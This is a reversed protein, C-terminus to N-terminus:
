NASLFDKAHQLKERDSEAASLAMLKKYFFTAQKDKEQLESTRGVGYISNFRNPSRELVALYEKEAEEYREMEMLMDALLERAPLIEGPTVPHKETSSEMEAAKRMIKLAEKKDGEQYVLWAKVSLRQIDIQKAWYLSNESAKEQLKKLINISNYGKEKDDIRVAGLGRAFHTIAEMAPFDDWPYNNPIRAELSAAKEWKQRELAFRAPVAALTYATAVHPQFPGKLNKSTDLINKVKADDARQLYAYALYDLAHLYHLSITGGESKDYAADASRINMTISEPWLGLRTFIHSSMHLAHPVKPAIEGYSRAVDLVKDALLPYDFAHIIYHHAGPHDPISNLTKQALQASFKQKAYSKDSPEATAMHALAYLSTAEPDEPFRQYVKQWGKEFNALNIKENSNWGNKYYAEAAEIYAQEWDTKQGMIKAQNVLAKGKQFNEQNPPDSWLPHIFSMAQGWYAMACSPDEQSALLFNERAGEYTMHHLLALGRETYRRASEQCSVPFLVTGLENGYKDSVVKALEILNSNPQKYQAQALTSFSALTAFVIILGNIQKNKSM